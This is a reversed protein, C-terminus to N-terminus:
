MIRCRRKESGAQSSNGAHLQPRSVRPQTDEPCDTYVRFYLVVRTRQQRQPHEGMAGAETESKSPASADIKSPGRGTPIHYDVTLSEACLINGRLGASWRGMSAKIERIATVVPVEDGARRLTPMFVRHTLCRPPRLEKFDAACEPFTSYVIRMVKLYRVLVRVKRYLATGPSRRRALRSKQTVHTVYCECVRGGAEMDDLKAKVFLTQLNYLKVPSESELWQSARKLVGTFQEFTYEDYPKPVIDRIEPPPFSVYNRSWLIIRACHTSNVTGFLSVRSCHSCATQQLIFRPPLQSRPTNYATLLFLAYFLLLAQAWFVKSM